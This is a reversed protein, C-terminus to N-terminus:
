LGHGFHGKHGNSSHMTQMLAELKQKQETTLVARIQSMMQGKVLFLAQQATALQQAAATIQDANYTDNNTTANLNKWAAGVQQWDAKLTPEFQVRIAAVDTKQQDSLNLIMDFIAEM